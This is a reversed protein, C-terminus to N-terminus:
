PTVIICELGTHDDPLDRFKISTYMTEKGCFRGGIVDGAKHAKKTPTYLGCPQWTLPAQWVNGAACTSYQKTDLVNSQLSHGAECVYAFTDGIGVVHDVPYYFTVNIGSPPMPPPGLCGVFTCPSLTAVDWSGDYQCNMVETPSTSGGGLDFQQGLGCTYELQDEYMFSRLGIDLSADATTLEFGDVASECRADYICVRDMSFVKFSKVVSQGSTFGLGTIYLILHNPRLGVTFSDFDDPDVSTFPSGGMEFRIAIENLPGTATIRVSYHSILGSTVPDFENFDERFKVEPCSAAPIGNADESYCQSRLQGEYILTAEGPPTPPTGCYMNEVCTPWVPPTAWVNGPSCSVSVTDQNVDSDFKKGDKCKYLLTNGVSTPQGDWNDLMLNSGPPPVPPDVCTTYACTLIPQFETPVWLGGLCIQLTNSGYYSAGDTIEMGSQCGYQYYAFHDHNERANLDPVLTAADALPVTPNFGSPRVSLVVRALSYSAGHFSDYHIGIRRTTASSTLLNLGFFNYTTCKDFWGATNYMGACNLAGLNDM